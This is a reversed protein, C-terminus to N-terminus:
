RKWHSGRHSGIRTALSAVPLMWLLASVLVPKQSVSHSDRWAFPTAARRAASDGATASFLLRVQSLLVGIVALALVLAWTSWFDIRGGLFNIWMLGLPVTVLSLALALTGREILDLKGAGFLRSLHWGPVVIVYLSGIVVRTPEYWDANTEWVHLALTAGALVLTVAPALAERLQFPPPPPGEQHALIAHGAQAPAGETVTESFAVLVATAVGALTATSWAIPPEVDAQWAVIALSALGATCGLAWALWLKAPRKHDQASLMAVAGLVAVTLALSALWPEAWNMLRPGLATQAIVVVVAGIGFLLRYSETLRKGASTRERIMM